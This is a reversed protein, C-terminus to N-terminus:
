RTYKPDGSRVWWAHTIPRGTAVQNGYGEGLCTDNRSTGMAAGLQDGAAKRDPYPFNDHIGRHPPPSARERTGRDGGQYRSLGGLGSLIRYDTAICSDTIRALVGFVSLSLPAHM